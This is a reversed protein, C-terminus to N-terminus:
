GRITRSFMSEAAYLTPGMSQWFRATVTTNDGLLKGWDEVPRNPLLCHPLANMAGCSSRWCTTPLARPYSACASTTSIKVSRCRWFGFRVLCGSGCLPRHRLFYSFQGREPSDVGPPFPQSFCPAMARSFRCEPTHALEGGHCWERVFATWSGGLAAPVTPDLASTM